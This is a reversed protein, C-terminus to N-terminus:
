YAPLLWSTECHIRCPPLKHGGRRCVCEPHWGRSTSVIYVSVKVLHASKKGLPGQGGHVLQPVKHVVVDEPGIRTRYGTLLAATGDWLGSFRRCV